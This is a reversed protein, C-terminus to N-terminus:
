YDKWITKATASVPATGNWEGTIIKEEGSVKESFVATFSLRLKRITIAPEVTLSKRPPVDYVDEIKLTAPLTQLRNMFHWKKEGLSITGASIEQPVAVATTDNNIFAAAETDASSFVSSENIGDTYSTTLSQTVSTGNSLTSTRQPIIALTEGDGEQISYTIRTLVYHKEAPEAPVEPEPLSPKEKQCAIFFVAAAM